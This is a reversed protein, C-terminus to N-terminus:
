CREGHWHIWWLGCGGIEARMPTLGNSASLQYNGQAVWIATCGASAALAQQLTTFADTWNTGSNAGHAAGNVFLTQAAEVTLCPRPRHRFLGPNPAICIAM